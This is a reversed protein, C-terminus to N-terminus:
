YKYSLTVGYTRGMAPVFIDAFTQTQLTVAYLENTLNKGWLTMSVGRDGQVDWRLSANVLDYPKQRIRNDAEAAWGDSHFYHASATVRGDGVPIVYDAGADLTWDPTMPLRNGTASGSTVINGGTPRPTSVQANPYDGLRDHIYSAGLTLTLADFPRAVIDADFGYIKAKAANTIRLTGDVYSSLQINNYDYYFASANVRLRRGFLDSKIGAEYADLSEPDFPLPAPTFTSTNFGGSKFGRNYSAYVLTDPTLQHDIAVRWTPKGVSSKGFIPPPTTIVGTANALISSSANQRQTEDSYRLGLTVTTRPAFKYSAQGYVSVSRTRQYSQFSQTQTPLSFVGKEYGGKYWFYFAGATWKFPGSGTSVLQLEQSFQTDKYISNPSVLAAQLGDADLRVHTRAYRYATISVLDFTGFHHVGNLSAGAQKNAYLPQVNSNIDFKGGTFPVGSVPLTGDMPRRAPGAADLTAYDASLKFTTSDGADWKLKSRISFDRSKNVEEGTALNRGFGDMQNSYNVALDAALDEALGGTVYLSGAVTDKNGFTASAQGGLEQKPDRTTIQILGGTANRGFLTGQPGKLVAVQEVNALTLITSNSSAYYVGDVYTAVSNENGGFANTTGIGRIRPSASGAVQTFTLGPTAAAIDQTSALGKNALAEGSLATVAVPVSQLRESRRQATVVIDALGGSGNQAASPSDPADVPATPAAVAQARAGGAVAFASVAATAMLWAHNIRSM